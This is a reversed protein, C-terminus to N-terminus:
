NEFLFCRPGKQVQFAKVKEVDEEEKEMKSELFTILDKSFKSILL